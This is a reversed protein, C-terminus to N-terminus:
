VAGMKRTSRDIDGNAPLGHLERERAAVAEIPVLKTADPEHFELAGGCGICNVSERYGQVGIRAGM